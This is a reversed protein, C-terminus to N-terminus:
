AEQPKRQGYFISDGARGLDKVDRASDVNNTHIVSYGYLDSRKRKDIDNSTHGCVISDSGLDSRKMDNNSTQGYLISDGGLDAHKANLSTPLAQTTVLFFTLAVVLNRAM